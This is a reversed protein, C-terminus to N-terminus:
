HHLELIDGDRLPEDRNVMQGDYKNESWIRAFKLQEALERHVSVAFDYMTSGAPLVFPEELDPKRGPTKSYVRIVDLIDFLAQRLREMGRGTQASVAFLPLDTECLECFLEFVEEVERDDVKTCAVIMPRFVAAVPRKDEPLSEAEKPWLRKKRLHDMIFELQKLPDTSMDLVLCNVDAAKLLDVVWHEEHEDSVPPMDVLQVKIDKYPMMAAQPVRTTFPYAAVVPEANTLVDIIASKGANPMGALAVQGAGEKRVKHSFGKRTRVADRKSQDRLKSLRRRLDGQLHDTGKHKPIVRLMEELCRIKEETTEAEK